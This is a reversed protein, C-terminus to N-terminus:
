EDGKLKYTTGIDQAYALVKMKGVDDLESFLRFLEIALTGYSEYLLSDLHKSSLQDGLLSSVSIDFVEAMKVLTTLKINTVSGSEYKQIASKQVGLAEGLQTQTMGIRQRNSKIREHVVLNM